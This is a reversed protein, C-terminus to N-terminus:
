LVYPEAYSGLQKLRLACTYVGYKDYAM